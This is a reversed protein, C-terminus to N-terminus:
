NLFDDESSVEGDEPDKDMKTIFKGDTSIESSPTDM